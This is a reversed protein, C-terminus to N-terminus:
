FSKKRTCDRITETTSNSKFWQRKRKVNNYPIWWKEDSDTVIPDSFPAQLERSRLSLCSIARQQKNIESLDWKGAKSVKGKLRKMERYITMHCSAHFTKSLERTTCTPNGDIAVQLQESNLKTLM